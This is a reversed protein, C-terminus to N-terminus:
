NPRVIDVTLYWKIILQHIKTDNDLNTKVDFQIDFDDGENNVSRNSSLTLVIFCTM